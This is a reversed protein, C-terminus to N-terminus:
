KFHSLAIKTWYTQLFLTNSVVRWPLFWINRRTLWHQRMRLPLPSFQSINAFFHGRFPKNATKLNFMRILITLWDKYTHAMSEKYTDNIRQIHWQNKTHTMSEKYTDNIRKYTDNIRQIHWQNKTHTMSEKYADNIRQIHWQNKTHMMSEKYTDNIRQIHWQNQYQYISAFM